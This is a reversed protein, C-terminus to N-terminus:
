KVSVGDATDASLALGARAALARALPEAAVVIFLIRFLYRM